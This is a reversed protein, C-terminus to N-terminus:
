VMFGFIIFFCHNYLNNQCLEKSDRSETDRSETKINAALKMDNLCKVLEAYKGNGQREWSAIVSATYKPFIGRYIPHQELSVKDDRRRPNDRLGPLHIIGRIDPTVFFESPRLINSITPSDGEPQKFYISHFCADAYPLFPCVDKEIHGLGNYVRLMWDCLKNPPTQNSLDIETGEVKEGTAPNMFYYCTSNLFVEDKNGTFTSQASFNDIQIRLGFSDNQLDPIRTRIQEFSTLKVNEGQLLLASDSNIDLTQKMLLLPQMVSSKGSSNTGALVTIAKFDITVDNISKYKDVKIQRIGRFKSSPVESM